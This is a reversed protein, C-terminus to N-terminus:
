KRSEIISIFVVAVTVTVEKIHHNHNFSLKNFTRLM